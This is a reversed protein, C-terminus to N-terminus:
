HSGRGGKYQKILRNDLPSVSPSVIMGQDQLLRGTTRHPDAGDQRLTGQSQGPGATSLPPLVALVCGGSEPQEAGRGGGTAQEEGSFM